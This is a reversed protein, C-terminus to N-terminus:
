LAMSAVAQALAGCTALAAGLANLANQRRMSIMLGAGGDYVLAAPARIMAAASWALASALSLGIALTTPLSM